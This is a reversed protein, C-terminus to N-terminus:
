VENNWDLEPQFQQSPVQPPQLQLQPKSPNFNHSQHSRYSSQNPHPQQKQQLNPQQRHHQHKSISTFNNQPRRPPMTSSQQQSQHQLTPSQRSPRHARESPPPSHYKPSGPCAEQFNTLRERSPSAQQRLIQLTSFQRSGTPPPAFGFAFSLLTQGLPEFEDSTCSTSSPGPPSNPRFGNQPASFGENGTATATGDFIEEEHEDIEVVRPM